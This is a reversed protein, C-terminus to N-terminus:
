HLVFDRKGILVNINSVLELCIQRPTLEVGDFKIEKDWEILDLDHFMFLPNQTYHTILLKIIRGIIDCYKTVGEDSLVKYKVLSLFWCINQAEAVPIKTGYSETETLSDALISLMDEVAERAFEIDQPVQDHSLVIRDIKFPLHKQTLM